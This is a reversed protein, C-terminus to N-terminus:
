QGRILGDLVCVVKTGALYTAQTHGGQETFEILYNNRGLPTVTVTKPDGIQTVKEGDVTCTITCHANAPCEYSAAATHATGQAAAPLMWSCLAVLAFSGILLVRTM